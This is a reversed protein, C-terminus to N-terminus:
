GPPTGGTGGGSPSPSSRPRCGLVAVLQRDLSPYIVELPTRRRAFAIWATWAFLAAFASLNQWSYFPWAARNLWAADSWPWYYFLPWGPGSGLYDLLLHLHFLGLYVAFARGPRRSFFALAASGLLGATANHGLKHHLSWYLDQSVVIGLGDLDHLSAALMCFLRERPGFGAARSLADGVVWGSLVHTQIHM